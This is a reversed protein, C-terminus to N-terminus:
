RSLRVASPNRPRNPLRFNKKPIRTSRKRHPRRSPTPSRPPPERSFSFSIPIFFSLRPSIKRPQLTKRASRRPPLISFTFSLIKVTSSASSLLSSAIALANPHLVRLFIRRKSALSFRLMQFIACCSSVGTLVMESCILIKTCDPMTEKCSRCM